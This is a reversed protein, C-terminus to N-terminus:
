EDELEIGLCEAYRRLYEFIHRSKAKSRMNSLLVKAAAKADNRFDSQWLDNLDDYKPEIARAMAEIVEHEKTMAM